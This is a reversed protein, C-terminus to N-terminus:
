QASICRVAMGTLKPYSSYNWSMTPSQELAWANNTAANGSASWYLLASGRGSININDIYTASSYRSGAAPLFLGDGVQGILYGSTWNTASSTATDGKATWTNYSRGIGGLEERIPVRWGEPCPNTTSMDWTTATSLTGGLTSWNVRVAVATDQIASLVSYKMGWKFKDGHLAQGPTFPDASEDAGLNHCMFVQYGSGNSSVKPDIKAGCCGGDKITATMKIAQDTGSGDGMNNFIVYIDVTLPNAQTLKLADTNLSTKYLLTAKASTINTATEYAANPTLSQVIKGTQSEVYVFRVKSVASGATFTYTQSNSFDAKYKARWGSGSPSGGAGRVTDNGQAVDFCFKGDLTAIASGDILVNMTQPQGSCTGNSPTVTINGSVASLSTNVSISNTGQGRLSTWGSEVPPVTWNYTTGSVNTVSYTLGQVGAFVFSPGTIASPQAPVSNITVDLNQAQGNNGCSNSPTVTITGGATGSTVTIRNTTGGATQEWGVPLKWTYSTVSSVNTVSYILGTTNPCVAAPGSIVSPQAPAQIVTMPLSRISSSGCSNNATVTINGNTTGATVTISNGTTAGTTQWDSSPLGWTYSTAGSVSAVSYTLGSTNPCVSTSGSITNPTAPVSNVTVPLSLESSSGCSNNAKVTINGGTTGTTVTISNTTEGATIQWDSPLGWTYSTAGSVSAVSYTQTVGSCVLTNGTIASPQDPPTCAATVNVNMTQSTGSCSGNSPTVTITGGATGATVTISNTTGGSTQTWGDPLKWTYTVGSVNTVSYTLDTANASVTAPGSIESPQDIAANVVTVALTRATRSSCIGDVAIVSINGNEANAGATVTISSGLTEGTWGTPLTWLYSIGLINTVSYTHTTGSCVTTDGTIASPQAPTLCMLTVDQAFVFDQYDGMCNDTIRVIATRASTNPYGNNPMTITFRGSASDSVVISIYQYEEKSPYIIDFSYAPNETTCEPTDHPFFPGKTEGYNSFPTETPDVLKGNIDTFFINAKGNCLEVWEAGDWFEICDTITNYILLGKSTEPSSLLTPTLADRKDTTLQPLRLGGKQITTTLELLSFPQPDNQSGVNVQAKLPLSFFAAGLVILLLTFKNIQIM